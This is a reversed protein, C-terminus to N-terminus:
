EGALIKRVELSGRNLASRATSVHEVLNLALLVQRNNATSALNRNCQLGRALEFVLAKFDTNHAQWTPGHEVLLVLFVPQTDQPTASRDQGQFRQRSDSPLLVTVLCTDDINPIITINMVTQLLVAQWCPSCRARVLLDVLFKANGTCTRIYENAMPSRPQSKGSWVNSSNALFHDIEVLTFLNNRRKLLSQLIAPNDITQYLQNLTTTDAYNHYINPSGM